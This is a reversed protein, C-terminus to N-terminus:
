MLPIPLALPCSNVGAPDYKQLVFHAMIVASGLPTANRDRGVGFTDDVMCRRFLSLFEYGQHCRCGRMTSFSTALM